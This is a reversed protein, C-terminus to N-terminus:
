FEPLQRVFDALGAPPTSTILNRWSQLPLCACNLLMNERNKKTLKGSKLLSTRNIKIFRWFVSESWQDAMEHPVKAISKFCLFFSLEKCMRCGYVDYFELKCIEFSLLLLKFHAINNDRPYGIFFYFVRCFVMSEWIPPLGALFHFDYSFNKRQRKNALFSCRDHGRMLLIFSVNFIM